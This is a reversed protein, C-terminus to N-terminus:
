AIEAAQAIAGRWLYIAALPAAGSETAHGCEPPHHIVAGAPQTQWGEGERWWRGQGLPLYIEEAPHHHRPYLTHPGLVLIGLRLHDARYGAEPGLWEQYGYNELFAPHPPRARYNPNQRWGHGLRNLAASVEAAFAGLPDGAVVAPWFRAVPLTTGPQAAAVPILNTAATLDDAFPKCEARNRLRAAIAAVFALWSDAM